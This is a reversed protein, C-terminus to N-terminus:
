MSRWSAKAEGDAADNSLPTSGDVPRALAMGYKNVHLWARTEAALLGAPWQLYPDDSLVSCCRLSGWARLQMGAHSSGHDAIYTRGSWERWNSKGIGRAKSRLDKQINDALQSLKNSQSAAPLRPLVM